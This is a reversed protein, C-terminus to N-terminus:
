AGAATGGAPGRPRRAPGADACTLMTPHNRSAARRSERPSSASRQTRARVEEAHTTVLLSHAEEQQARLDRLAENHDQAVGALAAEDSAAAAEVSATRGQQLAQLEAAHASKAAAVTADHAQRLLLLQAAHAAQMESLQSTFVRSLEGM